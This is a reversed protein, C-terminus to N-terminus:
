APSLSSQSRLASQAAPNYIHLKAAAAAYAAAADEINEFFGLHFRKGLHKIQAQWKGNGKFKHVGKFGSTNNAYKSMNQRNENISVARLNVIRNDHTNHNIHDVVSEPWEGHVYFWAVRHAKWYAGNLRLKTYGTPDAHGAIDGPRAGNKLCVKWRFIGTVPDYDILNKLQDQTLTFPLIHM